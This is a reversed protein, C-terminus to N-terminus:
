NNKDSDSPKDDDGFNIKFSVDLNQEKKIENFGLIRNIIDNLKLIDRINRKTSEDDEMLLDRMRMLHELQDDVTVNLRVKQEYKLQNIYEIVVTSSLLKSAYSGVNDSEFGAERAARTGNSYLVYLECFKKQRATLQQKPRKKYASM